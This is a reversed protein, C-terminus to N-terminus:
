KNHCYIPNITFYLFRAFRKVVVKIHSKKLKQTMNNILQKELKKTVM